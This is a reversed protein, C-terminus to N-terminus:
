VLHNKRRVLWEVTVAGLFALFLVPNNWFETRTVQTVRRDRRPIKDAVQAADAVDFYAGGSENAIARLAEPNTKTEALELGSGFVVFEGASNALPKGASRLEAAVEYRGGVTPYYSGKFV